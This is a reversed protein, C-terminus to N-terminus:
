LAIRNSNNAPDGTGAHVWRAIVFCDARDPSRGILEKISQGVRAGRGPNKPTVRIIKDDNTYQHPRLEERLDAIDPLDVYIGIDGRRLDQGTQWFQESRLDQYGPETPAAGGEFVQIGWGKSRLIARVGAGVGVGDIGVDGPKIGRQQAIKIIGLATQEAPDVPSSHDVPVEIIESLVGDDMVGARTSDKGGDAVDVGLVRRGATVSSRLARDLVLSPFLMYDAEDVDWDGDRLRKREAPPAQNLTEIYNRSVFPNDFVLSRVFARYATVVEGTPLEVLGHEWKQMRGMGLSKYVEYFMKKIFNQTPNCSMVTKGVIGYEKNLFRNKRTNLVRVGKEQVEGVEEIVVHTLELSGFTDYEPDMPHYKMDILLIQSGNKYTILGQQESYTYESDRVGLLKHVKSLLTVVTTQKLRKLEERGLGIRVGPYNRCELVMWICVIFSNHTVIFDETAVFLGDPNDVTICTAEDTGVPEISVIRRKVIISSTQAKAKKRSLNFALKNDQFKIYVKYAPACLKKRGDPFTCFSEAHTITAKGGLSRALWQVDLALQESISCFSIRGDSATGDTDMLGRLLEWRNEVSDYKYSDPIFKHASKHASLGLRELGALLRLRLEGRAWYGIDHKVWRGPEQSTVRVLMEEDVTTFSVTNSRLCGDGLLVGLVYPDIPRMDVKYAKTFSVPETLPILIRRGREMAARLQATTAIKWPKGSKEWGGKRAFCYTWLHDQDVDIKAGDSFKVRYIPRLGQYTKAIIRTPKGDSGIVSQGIELDEINRFGFPTAVPTGHRLAKAGGAGGGFLLEVVTPDHLLRLALSQTQSLELKRNM